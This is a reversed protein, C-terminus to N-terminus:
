RDYKSNSSVTRTHDTLLRLEVKVTIIYHLKMILHNIIVQQQSCDVSSMVRCSFRSLLLTEM